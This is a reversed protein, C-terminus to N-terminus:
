ILITYNSTKLHNWLSHINEIKYKLYDGNENYLDWTLHIAKNFKTKVWKLNLNYIENHINYDIFPKTKLISFNEKKVTLLHVGTKCEIYSDTIDIPSPIWSDSNNIHYPFNKLCLDICSIGVDKFNLNNKIEEWADKTKILLDCDTITIFNYQECLKFYDEFFIENARYTINEDFRIHGIINKCKSFYDAIQESNLSYNEVVFFDINNLYLSEYCQKIHQINQYCFLICLHSNM